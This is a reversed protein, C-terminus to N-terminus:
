NIEELRNVLLFSVLQVQIKLVKNNAHNFVEEIFLYM